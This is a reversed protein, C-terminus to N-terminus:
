VQMSVILYLYFADNPTIDGYQVLNSQHPGLVLSVGTSTMTTISYYIMKVFVSIIWSDAVDSTDEIPSGIASLVLASVEPVGTWHSPAIRYLLTYIGGFLLVTSLYSQVLFSDTATNHLM